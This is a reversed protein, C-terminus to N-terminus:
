EARLAVMPDVRAARRAPIVCAFASVVAFFTVVVAFVGPDFPKVEYLAERLLRSAVVAGGLGILLGIGVQIAGARLGLKLISASDAGLAMRVGIEGTRQSVSYAKVSCVGVAALLAAIGAFAILLAMTVRQVGLSQSVLEDITQPQALAVIPDLELLIRRLVPIVAVARLGPRAEGVLMMFAGGKQERPYYIEDPPPASLGTSKVDNIVGVIRIPTDGGPGTLFHQDIASEGPFLRKAFSENVICVLEGDFRDQDSFLRGTRLQIGLAAFYDPTAVRINALPREQVPVLPRGQIGYPSYFGTGSLPLGAIVAGHALEPTVRLKEQLQRYFERMLEPNGYKSSPLNVIGYARGATAFGLQATQLKHFSRVLLGACILLTLSMAVQAVVLVHRFAKATTGGGAGRSTDKLVVQVDTRSAQVAPYLGIILGSLLAVVLSFALVGWDLDIENARPIQQGALVEIGRLSWWALLLGLAGALVSFVISEAVFQRVVKGRRAGLSMRVAIEKQRSSVRALFLNAINACAILLVLAVAGALTWFQSGINDLIQQEMTRVVSENNADIHSPNASKFQAAMEAVRLNAQELTLGPALRGIASHVIANNRQQPNIYPLELPRPVIVATQNSPVPLKEPLVGVVERAAGDIQLVRGIMEPDGSFRNQWLQHSIMVVPPGGEKDEKATFQRGREPVIGLVPPFNASTHLGFLQEPNGTGETLTFGNGASMSIESFVDTRERYTEFKAWSLAPAQLGSENNIAWISVLSDPNPYPLPRLVVAQLVSFLSVCAGIAIAMTLIAVFSFGPTKLLSRFAFRINPIM